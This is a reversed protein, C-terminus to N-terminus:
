CGLTAVAWALQKAVSDEVAAKLKDEVDEVDELMPTDEKDGSLSKQSVRQM